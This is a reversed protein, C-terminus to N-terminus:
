WEPCREKRRGAPSQHSGGGPSNPWTDRVPSCITVYQHACARTGAHNAHLLATLTSPMYIYVSLFSVLCFGYFNNIQTSRLSLPQKLGHQQTIKLTFSRNSHDNQTNIINTHCRDNLHICNNGLWHRLYLIYFRFSVYIDWIYFLSLMLGWFTM